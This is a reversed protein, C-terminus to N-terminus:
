KRTHGMHWGKCIDCKYVQFKGEGTQTLGVSQRHNAHAKMAINRSPWVIKRCVSFSPTALAQTKLYAASM